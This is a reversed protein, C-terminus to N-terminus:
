CALCCVASRQCDQDKARIFVRHFMEGIDATVAVKRERFKMLVEPLPVLLDPGSILFSNLSEGSKVRAAADWVLRTKEPKQPNFVPFIPLYWHCDSSPPGDARVTYGKDLYDNLLAVIKEALVPNKLLRKKLGRARDLSM